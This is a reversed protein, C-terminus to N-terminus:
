VEESGGHGDLDRPLNQSFVWVEEGEDQDQQESTLSENLMVRFVNSLMICVRLSFVAVIIPSKM